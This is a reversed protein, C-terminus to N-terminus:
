SGICHRAEILAVAIPQTNINIRIRLLYDIRGKERRRPKGDIVDIGRETEERLILDETWGRGHLAPDIFKAKTDAESLPLDEGL